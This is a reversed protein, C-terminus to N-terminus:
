FDQETEKSLFAQDELSHVWFLSGKTNRSEGNQIIKMSPRIKADKLHTKLNEESAQHSQQNLYTLTNSADLEFVSPKVESDKSEAADDDERRTHGLGNM